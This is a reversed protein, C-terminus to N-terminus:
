QAKYDKIVHRRTAPLDTFLLNLPIYSSTETANNWIMESCNGPPPVSILVIFIPGFIRGGPFSKSGFYGFYGASNCCSNAPHLEAICGFFDVSNFAMLVAGEKGSKRNIRTIDTQWDTLCVPLCAALPECVDTMLLAEADSSIGLLGCYSVTVYVADSSKGLLGCYSVAV